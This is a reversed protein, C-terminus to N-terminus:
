GVFRSMVLHDIGDPFIRRYFDAFASEGCLTDFPVWVHHTGYEVDTPTGKVTRAFFAHVEYTSEPRASRGAALWTLSGRPIELSVEERLERIAASRTDEGVEVKGGPLTLGGYGRNTVALLENHHGVLAYRTVLVVSVQRDFSPSLRTM